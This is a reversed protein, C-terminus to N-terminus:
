EEEEFIHCTDDINEYRLKMREFEKEAYQRSKFKRAYGKSGIVKYPTGKCVFSGPCIYDGYEDKIYYVKM